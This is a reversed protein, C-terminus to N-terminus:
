IQPLIEDLPQIRPGVYYRRMGNEPFIKTMAARSYPSDNLWWEEEYGEKEKAPIYHITTEYYSDGMLVACYYYEEQDSQPLEGFYAKNLESEPVDFKFPM